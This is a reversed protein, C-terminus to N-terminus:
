IICSFLKLLGFSVLTIRCCFFLFSFDFPLLSHFQLFLFQSFILLVCLTHVCVSIRARPTSCPILFPAFFVVSILIERPFNGWRWIAMFFVFSFWADCEYQVTALAYRHFVFRLEQVCACVCISQIASHSFYIRLHYFSLRSSCSTVSLTRTHSSVRLPFKFLQFGLIRSSATYIDLPYSKLVKRWTQCYYFFLACLLSIPRLAYCAACESVCVCVCMFAFTCQLPSGFQWFDLVALM